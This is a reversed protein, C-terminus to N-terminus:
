KTQAPQEPTGPVTDQKFTQAFFQGSPIKICKATVFQEVSFNALTESKKDMKTSSSVIVDVSKDGNQITVTDNNIATIKGTVTETKMCVENANKTLGMKFMKNKEYKAGVCFAVGAVVMLVVGAILTKKNYGCIKCNCVHKEENEM